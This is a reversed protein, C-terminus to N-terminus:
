EVTIVDDNQLTFNAASQDNTTLARYTFRVRAALTRRVVYIEDKSALDTLGGASALAQAVGSNTPLTFVGPHAVEGLVTVSVPHTEEVGITVSPANLFSKFRQELERSLELPTKGRAQVDGILALTIGGDLRVRNKGSVRDEGYVRVDLLDGSDIRYPGSHDAVAPPLNQVWVFKDPTGCAAISVAALFPILSFRSL